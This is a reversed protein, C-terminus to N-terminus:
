SAGVDLTRIFGQRAMWTALGDFLETAYAPGHRLLASTTM